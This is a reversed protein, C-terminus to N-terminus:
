PGMVEDFEIRVLIEGEALVVHIGVGLVGPEWVLVWVCLWSCCLEVGM